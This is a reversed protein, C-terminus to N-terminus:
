RRYGVSPAGDGKVVTGNINITSSRTRMQDAVFGDGEEMSLDDSTRTSQAVLANAAGFLAKRAKKPLKLRAQAHAYYLSFNSGIISIPLATIIVSCAACLTGFIKGLTTVPTIDGYGVTTITVVAWWFAQPISTFKKANDKKETLFVVSAFIVVPIMILLVLLFLERMSAVMTHKLIQLGLNLKFFRFLRLLRILALIEIVGDTIGPILDLYFPLIALFDVWNMPQCIFERKNPSSAIRLGFEFTFWVGCIYEIYKFAEKIETSNDVADLTKFCYASVSLVIFAMSVAVMAQVSLVFFDNILCNTM